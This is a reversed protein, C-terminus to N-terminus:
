MNLVTISPQRSQGYCNHMTGGGNVPPIPPSPKPYLHNPPNTEITQIAPNSEMTQGPPPPVLNLVTSLGPPGNVAHCMCAHANVLPAEWKGVPSEFPSETTGMESIINPGMYTVAYSGPM